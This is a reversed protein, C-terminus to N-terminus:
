SKISRRSIKYLIKKFPNRTEQEYSRWLWYTGDQSIKKFEQGIGGLIEKSDKEYFGQREWVKAFVLFMYFAQLISLVLGHLGDKYGKQLFFTKFFDASPMRVADTWSLKQKEQAIGEAEIETYITNMRSVFQSISEYNHHVIPESMHKVEGKVDLPQHVTAKNFKGKGKKFLRLQYDPWWISNKIWKGFIINKRPILYGNVRGEESITKKIEQVLRPTVREDADLSLIWEQSAKEFGFNKQLDIKHPNNAQSYVKAGAKKAIELTDDTSSNDVVIVEDALDEVSEICLKINKEENYASIVVSIM